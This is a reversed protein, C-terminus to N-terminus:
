SQFGARKVISTADPRTLSPLGKAYLSLPNSADQTQNRDVKELLIPDHGLLVAGLELDSGQLEDFFANLSLPAGVADCGAVRAGAVM